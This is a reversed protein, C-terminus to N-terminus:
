RAGGQWGSAVDQRWNNQQYMGSQAPNRKRRRRCTSTRAANSSKPKPNMPGRIPSRCTASCTSATPQTTSSASSASPRLAKTDACSSAPTRRSITKSGSAAEAETAADVQCQDALMFYRHYLLRPWNAEKSPFEGDKIIANGSDLVQYKILHGNSPEPAFFHYGHNLYLADLYYQMFSGQAVEVVLPSSPPISLPALFVATLHWVLLLSILLKFAIHMQGPKRTKPRPQPATADRETGPPNPRTPKMQPPPAPPAKFSM